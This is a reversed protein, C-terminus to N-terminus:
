PSETGTSPDGKPKGKKKVGPSIGERRMRERAREASRAALADRVDDASTHITALLSIDEDYLENLGPMKKSLVGAMILDMDDALGFSNMCTKVMYGNPAKQDRGRARAEAQLLNGPVWDQEIFLCSDARDLTTGEATTLGGIYVDVEREQFQREAEEKSTYSGYAKVVTLGKATVQDALADMAGVHHGFVLACGSESEEVTEFIVDAIYGDAIKAETLVRRAKSWMGYGADKAQAMTGGEKLVEYVKQDALIMLDNYERILPAAKEGPPIDVRERLIPPLNPQAVSLPRRIMYYKFLKTILEQKNVGARLADRYHQDLSIVAELMPIGERNIDNRILTGSLLMALRNLDQLLKRAARTRAAKPNKIRHAEDVVTGDPNWALLAQLVTGAAKTLADKVKDKDAQTVWDPLSVQEVARLLDDQEPNIV